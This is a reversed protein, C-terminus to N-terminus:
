GHEGGAVPADASMTSLVARARAVMDKERTELRQLFATMDTANAAIDMTLGAPKSYYDVFEQLLKPVSQGAEPIAPLSTSQLNRIMEALAPCNHDEMLQAARRVGQGYGVRYLQTESLATAGPIAAVPQARRTAEIWALAMKESPDIPWGAGDSSFRYKTENPLACYWEHCAKRQAQEDMLDASM